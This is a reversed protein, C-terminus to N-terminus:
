KLKNSDSGFFGYFGDEKRAISKILHKRNAIAHLITFSKFSVVIFSLIFWVIFLRENLM